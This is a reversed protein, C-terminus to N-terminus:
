AYGSLRALVVVVGNSDGVSVMVILKEVSQSFEKWWPNKNQEARATRSGFWRGAGQFGAMTAMTVADMGRGSEHLGGCAGRARQRRGGREM